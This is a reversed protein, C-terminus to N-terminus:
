YKQAELMAGIDWTEIYAVGRKALTKALEWDVIDYVFWQWPGIWPQEPAAPLKRYNCILFEPSLAIAQQQSKKNYRKIVWGIVAGKERALALVPADFSIIVARQVLPACDDLIAAVCYDRSFHAFSEEKIEVFVTVQPYEQLLEVLSTLFPIPEPKFADNLRAPEHASIATLEDASYDAVRGSQGTTRKLTHDHIVMARGDRSFQVDCEIATAGAQVAAHFGSLTNEPCAAPYGRHGVLIPQQPASM